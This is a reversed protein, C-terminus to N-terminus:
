TNPKMLEKGLSLTTLTGLHQRNRFAKLAAQFAPSPQLDQSNYNSCCTYATKARAPLKPVYTFVRKAKAVDPPDAQHEGLKDEPISPETNM